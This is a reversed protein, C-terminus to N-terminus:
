IEPPNRLGALAIHRWEVVEQKKRRFQHIPFRSCRLTGATGTYLGLTLGFPTQRDDMVSSAEGDAVDCRRCRSPIPPGRAAVRFQAFNPRNFPQRLGPRPRTSSWSPREHHRGNACVDYDPTKPDCDILTEAHVGRRTDM